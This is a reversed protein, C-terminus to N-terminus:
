VFPVYWIGCQSLGVTVVANGTVTAAAAVNIKNSGATLSHIKVWAACSYSLIM